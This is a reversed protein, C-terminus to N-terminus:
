RPVFYLQGSKKLILYFRGGNRIQPHFPQLFCLRVSCGISLLKRLILLFPTTACDTSCRRRTEVVRTRNRRASPKKEILWHRRTRLWTGRPPAISLSKGFLFLSLLAAQLSTPKDTCISCLFDLSFTFIWSRENITHRIVIHVIVVCHEHPLQASPFTM